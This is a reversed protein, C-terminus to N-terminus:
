PFLPVFNESITLYESSNDSIGVVELKKSIEAFCLHCVVQGNLLRFFPARCALCDTLM